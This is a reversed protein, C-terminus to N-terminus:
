CSGQYMTSAHDFHRSDDSDHIMELTLLGAGNADDHDKDRVQNSEYQRRLEPSVAM